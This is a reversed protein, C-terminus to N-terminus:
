PEWTRDCRLCRWTGGGPPILWHHAPHEGDCVPPKSPRWEPPRCEPCALVPVGLILAHRVSGLPVREKCRPCTQRPSGTM